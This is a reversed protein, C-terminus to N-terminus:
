VVQVGLGPFGGLSWVLSGGFWGCWRGGFWPVGLIRFDPEGM